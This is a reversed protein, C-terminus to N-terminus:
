QFKLWKNTNVEAILSNRKEVLTFFGEVVGNKEGHTKNQLSNDDGGSLPLKKDEDKKKEKERRIYYGMTARTKEVLVGRGHPGGEDWITWIRDNKEKKRITVLKATSGREWQGLGRLRM